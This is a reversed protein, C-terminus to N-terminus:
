SCGSTSGCNSCKFTPGDPVMASGCEFCVPMSADMEVMLVPCPLYPIAFGEPVHAFSESELIINVCATETNYAFLKNGSGEPGVGVIRADNPVPNNKVSFSRRGAKCIEVFSEPSVQLIALRRMKEQGNIDM